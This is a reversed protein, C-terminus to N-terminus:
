KPNNRRSRPAPDPTARSPLDTRSDSALVAPALENARALVLLLARALVYPAALFLAALFLEAVIFRPSFGGAGVVGDGCAEAVVHMM